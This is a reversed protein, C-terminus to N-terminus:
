PQKSGKQVLVARPAWEDFQPLGGYITEWTAKDSVFTHARASKTFPSDLSGLRIRIQDPTASLYAYLPSGCNSCFARYKGPSSQYERLQNNSDSLVLESRDVGANAGHASGSAKRCSTCHCYGFDGLEGDIQYRINGCLCSGEYM